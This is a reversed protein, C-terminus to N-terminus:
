GSGARALTSYWDGHVGFQSAAYADEEDLDCPILTCQYRLPGLLATRGLKGLFSQGRCLIELRGQPVSPSLRIGASPRLLHKPAKGGIQLLCQRCCDCLSDDRQGEHPSGM